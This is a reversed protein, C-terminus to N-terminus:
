QAAYPMVFQAIAGIILCALAFVDVFIVRRLEINYGGVTQALWLFSIVSAFGVVILGVIVFM